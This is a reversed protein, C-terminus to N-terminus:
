IPRCRKVSIMTWYTLIPIKHLMFMETLIKETQFFTTIFIIFLELSGNHPIYIVNEGSSRTKQSLIELTASEVDGKNILLYPRYKFNLSDHVCVYVGGGKDDDLWTIM